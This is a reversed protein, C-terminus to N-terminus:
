TAEVTTGFGFIGPETMSDSMPIPCLTEMACQSLYTQLNSDNNINNINMMINLVPQYQRIIIIICLNSSAYTQSIAKAILILAHIAVLNFPM